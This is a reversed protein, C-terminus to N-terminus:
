KGNNNSSNKHTRNEAFRRQDYISINGVYNIKKGEEEVGPVKIRQRRAEHLISDRNKVRKKRLVFHFM